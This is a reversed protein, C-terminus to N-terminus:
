LAYCGVGCAAWKDYHYRPAEVSGHNNNWGGWVRAWTQFPRPRFCGYSYGQAIPVGQHNLGCDMRDTVSEDLPRLSWLVSQLQQAFQAGSLQDLVASYTAKNDITFLRAVLQDFANTSAP